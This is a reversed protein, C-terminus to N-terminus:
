SGQKVFRACTIILDPLRVIRQQRTECAKTEPKKALLLRTKDKHKSSLIGYYLPVLIEIRPIM